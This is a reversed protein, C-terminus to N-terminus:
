PKTTDKRELIDQLLKEEEAIKEAIELHGRSSLLHRYLRLLEMIRTEDLDGKNQKYLNYARSFCSVAKEDEHYKYYCFGLDYLLQASERNDKKDIQMVAQLIEIAQSYQEREMKTSAKGYKWDAILSNIFKM